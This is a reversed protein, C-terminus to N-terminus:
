RLTEHAGRLRKVELVALVGSVLLVVVNPWAAGVLYFLHSPMAEPHFRYFPKSTLFELTQLSYVYWITYGVGV